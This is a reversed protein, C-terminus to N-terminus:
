GLQGLKDRAVQQQAPSGESLVENLLERAGEKDGMEEYAQALEIKTAVEPDDAIAEATADPTALADPEELELSIASLDFTPARAAAGPPEPAPIEDGFDFDLASELDAAVPPAVPPEVPSEAPAEVPVEVLAESPAPAPVQLADDLDLEFDMTDIDTAANAGLTVDVAPETEDLPLVLPAVQELEEAVADKSSVETASIDEAAPAAELAGIDLDFDLAAPAGSADDAAPAEASTEPAAPELDLDFDLAAAVQDGDSEAEVVAAPAGVDLDFDLSMVEDAPPENVALAAPAAEARPEEGLDLDFDLSQPLEEATAEAAETADAAEEANAAVPSELPMISTTDLHTEVADTGIGANAEAAMAAVAAVAAVGGAVAYLSNAPDISRGLAAATDWVQGAGGTIGRLDRAVTQFQPLSKRAAYIELLKLHIATRTPESRLAELLIEEAQTDRGYAIYVDAEAVPDVGEDGIGGEQSFDTPLVEGTDVSRGGSDGFVSDMAESDHLRRAADSAARRRRWANYGLYGLLLAIVGGGGFVIEPNDEVFNPPPPPPSAPPLAPKQASPVQPPAAPPVVVEAPAKPAETLPTTAPPPTPSAPKAVEAPPVAPKAQAQEQLKAGAASRMEALRKLDNLNKELAAIRSNADKLARERAVMDEEVAAIRDSAGSTGAKAGQARSVELKDTGAAPALAKDELRPSIRGSAAQRPAEEVAPATAVANALKQQYAKFDRAQAVVLTRAEQPDIAALTERDPMNLIKGARLRNMNASSFAAENSRFLAVLMQDLSVGAPKLEGAIKSLTDGPKVVRAVSGAAGTGATPQPSPPPEAVVPKRQPIEGTPAAVRPALAPAPTAVAPPVAAPAPRVEPVAVPAPAPKRFVDPPDLLFTYERVLRGSAWNVEVLMDVFPENLPRESTVQLYPQGDARQDLSFRIGSLASSYEIGANRFADASALRASLSAYEERSASLEIEARLPQGLASVVTLKGLGAAHVGLPLVALVLALVSAKLRKQKNQTRM